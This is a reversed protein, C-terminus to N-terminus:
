LVIKMKLKIEYIPIKMLKQFYEKQELSIGTLQDKLNIEKNFREIQEKM